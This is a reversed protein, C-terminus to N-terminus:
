AATTTITVTSFGINGGRSKVFTIKVQVIGEGTLTVKMDAPQQVTAGNLEESTYTAVVKGSADLGEFKLKSSGTGQNNLYWHFTVDVSNQAKFTNSTVSEKDKRFSSHFVGGVADYCGKSANLTWGDVSVNEDKAKGAFNASTLTEPGTPILEFKVVLVTNANIKLTFSTKGAVSTDEAADGVKVSALRYGEAPAVTVTIVTDAGVTTVGSEIAKEGAMVSTIEGNGGDVSYNVTYASAAAVVKIKVDVQKGGASVTVTVEDKAANATVVGTTADLSISDTDTTSFTVAGVKEALYAPTIKATITATEGIVIESKDSTATLEWVLEVSEVNTLAFQAGNVWGINVGKLNFKDGATMNAFLAKLEAYKANGALMRVTYNTGNFTAVVNWGTEAGTKSNTTINQSVFVLGAINVLKAANKADTPVETLDTAVVTTGDEVKLLEPAKLEYLDKYIDITGGFTVKKGIAVGEFTKNTYVYFAYDGDQIYIASPDIMTVVGTISIENGKAKGYAEQITVQEYKLEFTATIVVETDAEKITYTTGTIATGNVKVQGLKYDANAPTATITLVTGDRYQKTTDLAEGNVTVAVTGNQIAEDVTVTAYKIERFTATITVEADNVTVSYVGEVANLKTGNVLIEVLEHNADAATPVIVLTKSQQVKGGTFAEGNITVALTGGDAPQNITVNFEPITVTVTVDFTKTATAENLKITATLTVVTEAAPATVVANEGNIAIVAENNSTWTITTGNIGTTPLTFSVGTTTTALTLAEKAEDVLEQDTKVVEDAYVITISEFFSTYKYSANHAFTFFTYTAADPIIEYEYQDKVTSLTTSYANGNVANGFTITHTDKNSFGAKGDYLKVILKAIPKNTATTNWIKSLKGNKNRTQIGADYFGIEEFSFTVGNVTVGGEPSEQYKKQQLKLSDTTLIVTNPDVVEAAKITANFDKSKTVSGKTVSVTFKVPQDADTRTITVLRTEQNVVANASNSSWEVKDVADSTPLTFNNTIEAPVVLAALVSDVTEEDTQELITVSDASDPYVQYKNYYNVIGKLNAKAGVVWKTDIASATAEDILYQDNYFVFNKGNVSYSYEKGNKEGLVVNKLSIRTSQTEVLAKDTDNEANGFMQTRDVYELTVNESQATKGTLTVTAGSNFQYVDFSLAVTGHVTVQAGVPYYENIAERTKLNSPLKNTDKKYANYVYLGHGQDDMVWMSGLSGSAYGSGISANVGIIYGEFTYATKKDGDDCAKKIAEYSGAQYKPVTMNYGDGVALSHGQNDKVTAKLVFKIDAAAKTDVQVKVYNEKSGEVIKVGNQDGETVTVTWEVTYDGYKNLVEFDATATAGDKDKYMNHILKKVNELGSLDPEQPGKDKDCAVFASLCLILVLACIIVSRFNFAKKM